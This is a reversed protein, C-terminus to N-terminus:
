MVSYIGKSTRVNISFYIRRYGLLGSNYRLYNFIMPKERLNNPYTMRIKNCYTFIILKKGKKMCHDLSLQCMVEIIGLQQSQLSFDMEPIRRCKNFPVKSSTSRPPPVINRNITRLDNVFSSESTITAM